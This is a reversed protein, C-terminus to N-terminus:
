DAHGGNGGNGGNNGKTVSGPLALKPLEFVEADYITIDQKENPYRGKLKLATDLYKHRAMYDPVEVFDKTMGHADAMEEGSPAVVMASICKTSRLGEDLCELLKRDPLFEEVLSDFEKLVDNLWDENSEM